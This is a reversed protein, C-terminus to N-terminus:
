SKGTKIQEKYWKEHHSKAYEKSIKGRVMSKMSEPMSPHLVSLTFHVLFFTGVAIFAFDHFLVSWQFVGAPLAGKFFWMLIGTIVFVVGGM